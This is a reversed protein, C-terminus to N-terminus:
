LPITTAAYYFRIPLTSSADLGWIMHSDVSGCRNPIIKSFISSRWSRLLNATWHFPPKLYSCGGQLPRLPLTIQVNHPHWIDDFTLHLCNFSPCKSHDFRKSYWNKIANRSQSLLFLSFFAIYFHSVKMKNLSFLRVIYVLAIITKPSLRNLIFYLFGNM